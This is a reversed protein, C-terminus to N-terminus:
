TRAIAPDPEIGVDLARRAKAQLYAMPDSHGEVTIIAGGYTAALSAVRKFSDSYLRRFNTRTPALFYVEFAFLEGTAL